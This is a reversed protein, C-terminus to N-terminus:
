FLILLVFLMIYEIKNFESSNNENFFEDDEDDDDEDKNNNSDSSENNKNDENKENTNSKDTNENNSINGFNKEIWENIQTVASEKNNRIVSRSIAFGDKIDAGTAYQKIDNVTSGIGSSGHTNFPYVKKGTFNLKELQTILINPIHSYWLPYGILIIDYDDIDTLPDKIEPRLNNNQENQAIPLMDNENDPYATVPTIKYTEMPIKENIYNAFLETNGTITFYIMLMKDTDISEEYSFTIFLFVFIFYIKM